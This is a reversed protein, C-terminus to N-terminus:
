SGCNEFVFDAELVCFVQNGNATASANPCKLHGWIRGPDVSAQTPDPTSGQTLTFMNSITCDSESYGAGSFSMTSQIGTGNGTKDVTGQMRFNGGQGAVQSSNDAEVAIAFGGSSSKVSCTVTIPGNSNSGTNVRTVTQGPVGAPGIQLALQDSFTCQGMPSGSALQTEVWARAAPAPSSCASAFVSALVCSSISLIALPPAARFTM